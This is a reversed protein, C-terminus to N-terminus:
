NQSIIVIDKTQHKKSVVILKRTKTQSFTALLQQHSTQQRRKTHHHNIILQLPVSSVENVLDARLMRHHYKGRPSILAGDLSKLSKSYQDVGLHSHAYNRRNVVVRLWRMIQLSLQTSSQTM